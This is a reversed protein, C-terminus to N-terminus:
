TANCLRKRLVAWNSHMYSTMTAPKMEFTRRSQFLKSLQRFKETPTARRLERLEMLKVRKWRNRLTKNMAILM